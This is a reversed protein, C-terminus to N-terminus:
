SITDAETVIIAVPALHHAGRRSAVVALVGPLGSLAAKLPPADCPWFARDDVEAPPGPPQRVRATQRVPRWHDHRRSVRLAALDLRGTIRPDRKSGGAQRDVAITASRSFGEKM